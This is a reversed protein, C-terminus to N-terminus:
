RDSDRNSDSAAAGLNRFFYGDNALAEISELVASRSVTDVIVLNPVALYRIGSSTRDTIDHDLSVNWSDRFALNFKRGDAFEVVVGDLFGKSEIEFAALADYNEPFLVKYSTIMPQM